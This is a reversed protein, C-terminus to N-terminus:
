NDNRPAAELEERIGDIEETSNSLNNEDASTFNKTLDSFSPPPVEPCSIVSGVAKNLAVIVSGVNSPRSKTSSISVFLVFVLFLSGLTIFINKSAM